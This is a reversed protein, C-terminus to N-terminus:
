SFTTNLNELHIKIQKKFIPLSNLTKFHTPLKNFFRPINYKIGFRSTTLNRFTLPLRHENRTSYSRTPPPSLSQTIINPLTNHVLKYSFILIHYIYLQSFPLIHLRSFLPASPTLRPSYTIIRIIKKQTTILDKTYKKYTNGWITICYTLHPLILTNYLTILLQTNVKPRLRLLIGIIKSVKNNTLSIHHQWNLNSDIIIGLFKTKYVREISTNDLKLNFNQQVISKKNSYVMFNTKSTNIFLHNATFWQSLTNLHANLEHVTNEINDGSMLLSTDDAYLTKHLSHVQQNLDNIYIIFFLPGLISGQPVGCTINLMSSKANNYDVYQKRNQLYSRIWNLATGRIGYHEVKRLLYNHNVLDFAKSLDLFTAIAFNRNELIDYIKEVFLSIAMTTSHGKRFGFQNPSLIAHNKLHQELRAYMIKEFLKSFLPLVSVPRYNTFKSADNAKFIPSIKAIKIEDPVIGNQLSLNILHALSTSVIPFIHKLIPLTIRDFGPSVPKLNCIITNLEDTTTPTLFVTPYTKTTDLYSMPNPATLPIKSILNPGINVFYNNFENAITEKETIKSNNIYFETQTKRMTNQGMLEKLLRWTHKLTCQLKSQYYSKEATKLLSTLKNKYRKYFVLSQNTKHKLYIAYLKNKRKISNRLAITLWPKFKRKTNTCKQPKNETYARNIIQTFHTYAACLDQNETIESWNQALLARSMSNLSQANIISKPLPPQASHCTNSATHKSIHFTPLHDSIDTTLIGSIIHHEPPSNTFINDILTSSTQAIRTPRNILPLFSFSFMTDIFQSTLLHSSQNLLNINFDGAIYCHKSRLLNHTLVPNLHDSIFSSVNTNPPRYIVGIVIPKKRISELEIFLCEVNENLISLPEICKFKISSHVFLSVGGGRRHDRYLKVHAYDNFLYELDCTEKSLWTETLAIIHFKVKLENMYMVLSDNNQPLSRINLHFISMQSMLPIDSTLRLSNLTTENYYLSNCVDPYELTLENNFNLDPDANNLPDNADDFDSAFPTFVTRQEAM